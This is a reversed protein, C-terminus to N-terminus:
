GAPQAWYTNVPLEDYEPVLTADGQELLFSEGGGWYEVFGYAM